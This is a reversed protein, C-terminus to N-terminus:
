RLVLLDLDDVLAAITVLGYDANELVFGVEYKEVNLHGLSVTELNNRSDPKFINGYHDENRSM